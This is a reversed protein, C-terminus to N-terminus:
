QKVAEQGSSNGCEGGVACRGFSPSGFARLYGPALTLCALLTVFLCLGIAPGSDRFKGFDAFFMM